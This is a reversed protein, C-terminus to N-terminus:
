NNNTKGVHGSVLQARTISVPDLPQWRPHIRGTSPRKSIADVLDLGDVVQGIVTWKGSYEDSASLMIVIRPSSHTKSAPQLLVAGPQIPYSEVEDIYAYGLAENIEQRSTGILFTPDNDEGFQKIWELLQTSYEQSRKNKSFAKYIVFQYMDMAQGANEIVQQDLGISSANIEKPFRIDDNGEGKSLRIEVNPLTYDIILKDYYGEEVPEANAVPKASGFCILNKIATVSQPAAEEHLDISINGASTELRFLANAQHPNQCSTVTAAKSQEPQEPQESKDPQECSAACLLALAMMLSAPM